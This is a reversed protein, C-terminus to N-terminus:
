QDSNETRADIMVAALEEFLVTVFSQLQSNDQTFVRSCVTTHPSVLASLTEGWRPVASSAHGAM